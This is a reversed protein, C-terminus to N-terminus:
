GIERLDNAVGVGERRPIGIAHPPDVDRVRSTRAFDGPEDRRCAAIGVAEEALSRQDPTDVRDRAAVQDQCAVDVAAQPHEARLPELRRLADPTALILPPASWCSCASSGSPCPTACTAM